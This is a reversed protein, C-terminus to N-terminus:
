YLADPRTHHWPLLRVRTAATPATLAADGTWADVTGDTRVAGIIPHGVCEGALLTTVDTWGRTAVNLTSATPSDGAPITMRVLVGRTTLGAVVYGADNVDIMEVSRLAPVGSVATARGVQARNGTYNVPASVLGGKATVGFLREGHVALGTLDRLGAPLTGARGRVTERLRANAGTGALNWDLQTVAGRADVGLVVGASGRDTLGTDTPNDFTFGHVMLQTSAPLSVQDLEWAAGYPSDPAASYTAQTRRHHTFLTCDQPLPKGLAPPPDAVTVSRAGVASALGNAVAASVASTGGLVTLSPTTRALHTTTESAVDGPLTLLLPGRQNGALAGGALADAYTLGSSVVATTHDPFWGEALKVATEFRNRGSVPKAPVGAAALATVAPGGAAIVERGSTRLYAAVAPTLTGEGSLVVPNTGAAPGAALADPFAQGTAVFVEDGAPLERAIALSTDYRNPGALRRVTIGMDRIAKEVQTNVASPGGVILVRAPKKSALYGRVRPDLFTPQTLVIPARLHTALPTAAISDAFGDSRALIVTSGTFVDAKRYAVALSTDIRDAGGIREVSAAAATASQPGVAIAPLLGLAVAAALTATGRTVRARM